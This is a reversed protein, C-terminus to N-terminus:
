AGDESEQSPSYIRRHDTVYEGSCDRVTMQTYCTFDGLGLEYLQSGRFVVVFTWLEGRATMEPQQEQFRIGPRLDEAPSWDTM